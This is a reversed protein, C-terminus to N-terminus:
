DSNTLEKIELDANGNYCQRYERGLTIIMWNYNTSNIGSQIPEARRSIVNIITFEKIGKDAKAM